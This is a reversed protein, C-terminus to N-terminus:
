SDCIYKAAQNLDTRGIRFRGNGSGDTVFARDFGAFRVMSTVLPSTHGYPYAFSSIRHGLQNEIERKSDYIERWAGHPWARSLVPHTVTHAGFEVLPERDLERIQDWTLYLKDALKPVSASQDAAIRSM